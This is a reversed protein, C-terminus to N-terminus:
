EIVALKTERESDFASQSSVKTAGKGWIDKLIVKNKPDQKKLEKILEEVTM